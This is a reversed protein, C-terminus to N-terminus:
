VVINYFLFFIYSFLIILVLPPRYQILFQYNKIKNNYFLLDIEKLLYRKKKEYDRFTVPTFTTKIHLKKIRNDELYFDFIADFLSKNSTFQNMCYKILLIFTYVLWFFGWFLFISSLNLLKLPITIFILICLKGDSGGIINLAFLTISLFSISIFLILKELFIYITKYIITEIFILLFCLLTFIVFLNNNIKRKKLDNGLCILIIFLLTFISFSLFFTEFLPYEKISNLM